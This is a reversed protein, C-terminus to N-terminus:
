DNYESVIFGATTTNLILTDPSKKLNGDEDTVCFALALYTNEEDEYCDILIENSSFEGYMFDYEETEAIVTLNSGDHNMRSVRCGHLIKKSGKSEMSVGEMTFINRDTIIFNPTALGEVITEKTQDALSTRHMSYTNLMNEPTRGAAPDILESIGTVSYAYGSHYIGGATQSGALVQKNQAM